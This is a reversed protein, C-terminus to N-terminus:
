KGKPKDLQGKNQPQKGSPDKPLTVGNFGAGNQGKGKKAGTGGGSPMSGGGSMSSMMPSVASSVGSAVSSAANGISSAASKAGSSIAGATSSAAQKSDQITSKQHNITSNTGQSIHDAVAGAAGSFLKYLVVPGYGYGFISTFGIAVLSIFYPNFQEQYSTAAIIKENVGGILSNIMATVLAYFITVLAVVLVAIVFNVTISSTSEFVYFALLIPAFAVFVALFFWQFLLALQQVILGIFMMTSAFWNMLAMFVRQGVGDFLSGKDTDKNDEHFKKVMEIYSTKEKGTSEVETGIEFSTDMLFNVFNPFQLTFFAIFAITVIMNGIKSVGSTEMQKGANMLGATLMLGSVPLFYKGITSGVEVVSKMSDNTWTFIEMTM